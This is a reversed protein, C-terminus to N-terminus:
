VRGTRHFNLLGLTFGIWSAAYSFSIDSCSRSIHSIGNCPVTSNWGNQGRPQPWSIAHSSMPFGTHSSTYLFTNTSFPTPQSPSLSCLRPSAWIVLSSWRVKWCLMVIWHHTVPRISFLLGCSAKAPLQLSCHSATEDDWWKSLQVTM